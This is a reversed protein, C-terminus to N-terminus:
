GAIRKDVTINAPKFCDARALADDGPRLRMWERADDVTRDAGRCQWDEFTWPAIDFAGYERRIAAPDPVFAQVPRGDKLFLRCLRYEDWEYWAIMTQERRSLGHILIGQVESGASGAAPFLGPLEPGASAVGLRYGRITVREYECTELPRGVVTEFVRPDRLSAYSFSPLDLSITASELFRRQDERLGSDADRAPYFASTGSQM